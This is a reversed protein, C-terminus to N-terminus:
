AQGTVAQRLMWGMRALRLRALTCLGARKEPGSLARHRLVRPAQALLNATVSFGEEEIDGCEYASSPTQDWPKVTHGQGRKM